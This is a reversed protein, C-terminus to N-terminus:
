RSSYDKSFMMIYIVHIIELSIKYKAAFKTLWHGDSINYITLDWRRFPIERGDLEKTLDIAMHLIKLVNNYLNSFHYTIFDQIQRQFWTIQHGHTQFRILMLVFMRTIISPNRKNSYLMIMTLLMCYHHIKWEESLNIINHFIGENWANNLIDGSKSQPVNEM